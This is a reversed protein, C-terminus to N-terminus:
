IETTTTNQAPLGISESAMYIKTTVQVGVNISVSELYFVSAVVDVKMYIFGSYLIPLKACTYHFEGCIAVQCALCHTSKANLTDSNHRNYMDLISM